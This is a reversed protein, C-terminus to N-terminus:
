DLNFNSKISRIASEIEWLSEELEEKNWYEIDIDDQTMVKWQYPCRWSTLWKEVDTAIENLMDTNLDFHTDIHIYMFNITVNSFYILHKM